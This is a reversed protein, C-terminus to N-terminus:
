LNISSEPPPGPCSWVLISRTHDLSSSSWYCVLVLGYWVLVMILVLVLVLVLSLGASPGHDPSPGSWVQVLGFWVPVFIMIIILALVLGPGPGTWVLGLSYRLM